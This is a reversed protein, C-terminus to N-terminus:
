ASLSIMFIPALVTPDFDPVAPLIAKIVVDVVPRFPLSRSLWLPVDSTEFSLVTISRM